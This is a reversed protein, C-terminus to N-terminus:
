GLVEIIGAKGSAYKMALLQPNETCFLVSVQFSSYYHTCITQRLTLNESVEARCAPESHGLTM